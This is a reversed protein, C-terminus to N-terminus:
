VNDVADLRSDGADAGADRGSGAAASARREAGFVGRGELFIQWILLLIRLSNGLGALAREQLSVTM